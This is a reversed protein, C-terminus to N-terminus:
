FYTAGEDQVEISQEKSLLINTQDPAKDAFSFEIWLLTRGFGPKPILFRFWPGIETDNDFGFSKNLFGFSKKLKLFVLM